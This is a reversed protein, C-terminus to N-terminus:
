SQHLIIWYNNHNPLGLWACKEGAAQQDGAAQSPTHFKCQLFIYFTSRVKWSVLMDWRPFLFIMKMLSNTPSINSCWQVKKTNTGIYKSMRLRHKMNSCAFWVVQKSAKKNYWWNTYRVRLFRLITLCKTIEFQRIRRHHRSSPCPQWTDLNTFKTIQRNQNNFTKKM